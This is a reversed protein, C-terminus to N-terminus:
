NKSFSICKGGAVVFHRLINIGANGFAVNLKEATEIDVDSPAQIGDPHNHAIIVSDSKAEYALSLARKVSIDAQSRLGEGIREAGLFKGKASFMLMYGIEECEGIYIARLFKHLEIEDKFICSTDCESLCYRRIIDATVRIGLASTEGIGKVKRLSKESRTCMECFGGSSEILEHAQENTNVRPIFFQLLLEVTEHEELSGKRFKERLRKRHGNHNHM